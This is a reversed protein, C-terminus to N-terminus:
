GRDATVCVGAAGTRRKASRSLSRGALSRPNSDRRKRLIPDDRHHARVAAMSTHSWGMLAMVAGVTCSCDESGTEDTVLVRDPEGLHEAVYDREDAAVGDTDWV